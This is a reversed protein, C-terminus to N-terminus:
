ALYIYISDDNSIRQARCAHVSERTPPWKNAQIQFM